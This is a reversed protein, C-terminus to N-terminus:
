YTLTYLIESIYNEIKGSTIKCDISSETQSTHRSSSKVGYSKPVRRAGM